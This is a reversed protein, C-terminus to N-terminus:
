KCEVRIIVDGWITRFVYRCQRSPNEQMPAGKGHRSVLYSNLRSVNRMSVCRSRYDCSNVMQKPSFSVQQMSLMFGVKLVAWIVFVFVCATNVKSLVPLADDLSMLIAKQKLPSESEDVCCVWVCMCVCSLLASPGCHPKYICTYAHRYIYACTPYSASWPSEGYTARMDACVFCSTDRVRFNDSHVHTHHM